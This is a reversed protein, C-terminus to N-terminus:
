MTQLLPMFGPHCSSVTGPLVSSHGSVPECPRCSLTLGPHRSSVTGPLVSSCNRNLFSFPITPHAVSSRFLPMSFSLGQDVTVNVRPLPLLLFSGAGGEWCLSLYLRWSGLVTCACGLPITSSGLVPDFPSTNEHPSSHISHQVRWDVLSEPGTVCRQTYLAWEIM